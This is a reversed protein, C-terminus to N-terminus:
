KDVVCIGNFKFKYKRLGLNFFKYQSVFSDLNGGDQM